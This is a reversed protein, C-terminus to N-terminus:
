LYKQSPTQILITDGQGVDIFHVKMQGSVTTAVTPQSSAEQAKDGAQDGVSVEPEPKDNRSGSEQASSSTEQEIVSTDM